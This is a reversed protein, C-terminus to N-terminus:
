GLIGVLVECSGVSFSFVARPVEGLFGVSMSASMKLSVKSTHVLGWAKHSSGWERVGNKWESKDPSCEGFYM